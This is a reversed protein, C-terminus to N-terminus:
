RESDCKSNLVIVSLFKTPTKLNNMRLITICRKLLFTYYVGRRLFLKKKKKKQISNQFRKNHSFSQPIKKSNQKFSIKVNTKFIQVRNTYFYNNLFCKPGELIKLM